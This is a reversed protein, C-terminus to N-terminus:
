ATKRWIGKQQAIRKLAWWVKNADSTTRIAKDARRALPSRTSALFTAFTQETWGLQQVMRQVRGLDAATAMQPVASYEAGDRRGDIGARRAQDRSPRKRPTPKIGLHTQISDILFGADDASLAGFSTVPKHLHERAWALRSARDKGMGIEHNCLQSYLTQLRGIQPKTIQM